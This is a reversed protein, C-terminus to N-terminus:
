GLKQGGHTTGNFTYSNKSSVTVNNQIYVNASKAYLAQGGQYNLNNFYIPTTITTSGNNGIFGYGSTGYANQNQMNISKVNQIDYSVGIYNINANKGDSQGNVIFDRSNDNKNATVTQDNDKYDQGASGLDIDNLVNIHYVNTNKIAVDSTLLMVLTLRPTVPPGLM